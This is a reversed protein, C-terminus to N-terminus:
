NQPRKLFMFGVKGASSGVAGSQDLRAGFADWRADHRQYWVAGRDIKRDGAATPTENNAL